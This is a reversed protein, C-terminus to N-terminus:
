LHVPLPFSLMSTLSLSVFFLLTYTHKELTPLNEKGRYHLKIGSVVMDLVRLWPKTWLDSPLVRNVRDNGLASM